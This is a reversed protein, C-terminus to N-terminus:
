IENVTRETNFMNHMDFVSFAMQDDGSKLEEGSLMRGPCNATEPGESDQLFVCSM